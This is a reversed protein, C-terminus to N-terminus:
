IALKDLAALVEAEFRKSLDENRSKKLGYELFQSNRQSDAAGFCAQVKAFWFQKSLRMADRAMQNTAIKRMCNLAFENQSLEIPLHERALEAWPSFSSEAFDNLQLCAMSTMLYTFILLDPWSEVPYMLANLRRDASVRRFGLDVGRALRSEFSHSAIYKDVNMGSQAVLRYTKDALQLKERAIRLIEMKEAIGPSLSFAHAYTCAGSMESDAYQLLLGCLLEKYKGTCGQLSLICAGAALRELFLKDEGPCLDNPKSNM